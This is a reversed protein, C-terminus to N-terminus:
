QFLGLQISEPINEVLWHPLVRKRKKLCMDGATGNVWAAATASEYLNGNSQAVFAACIGALTDGTGGVTMDPNHIRNESIKKGDSIIDVGGKLLIVCKKAAAYKQVKAKNKEVDKTIQDQFMTRFEESHPTLLGKKPVVKAKFADADVVTPISVKSLIQSVAEITEKAAGLGNGIVLCDFNESAELLPKVHDPNLIECELKTTILAPSMTNITWAVQKPAFINVIDAGSALAALGVLAPAGVYQPSGGIVMIKGLDGKRSDFNRPKLVNQLLTM